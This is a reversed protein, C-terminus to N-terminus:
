RAHPHPMTRFALRRSNEVVDTHKTRKKPLASRWQSASLPKAKGALIADRRAIFWQENGV